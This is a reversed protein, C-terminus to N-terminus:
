ENSTFLDNMSIDRGIFGSYMNNKVGYTTIMTLIITKNTKTSERFVNVKNRLSLDYEKNIEYPASVFKIECLNIVKDRRDIILDIQAGEEHKDGKKQWTSIETMVGSIGLAKKIQEAHDKCIQEFSFGAWATRSPNDTMHSWFHDDKGLNDRIFKFYFLSYYDSLQYTRDRKAHGFVSNIRIFGSSELNSLMHTLVGNGPLKTDAIIEARTLGCRKKSLAEVIRVYQESNSFLTHYLHEFENWLESKKHFFLTDINTNLSEKKDLLKLYFPIGGMIMYCQVIDYRSWLIDRSHLYEETEKLTFPELYLRCTQRNFLGGKNNDFKETMWSSASGCVIFILNKKTSGWSNWFWEFASLFGSRQRDMWPMEDFFVVQKKGSKEEELYRRLSFFAETWDSPIDHKTGTMSDLELSFNKLQERTSQDYSGVFHFSFDGSFYETILYTKGVRRRGYVIVLQAENEAMVRDLREIEKDRGIINAM